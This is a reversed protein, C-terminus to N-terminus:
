YNCVNVIEIGAMEPTLQESATEIYYDSGYSFAFSEAYNKVQEISGIVVRDCSKFTTKFNVLHFKIM